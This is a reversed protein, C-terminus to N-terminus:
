IMSEAAYKKAYYYCEDCLRTEGLGDSDSLFNYREQVTDCTECTPVRYSDPGPAAECPFDFNGYVDRM